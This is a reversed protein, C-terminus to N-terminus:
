KRGAVAMRALRTMSHSNEEIFFVLPSVEVDNLQNM